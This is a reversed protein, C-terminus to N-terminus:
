RGIIAHGIPVHHASYSVAVPHVVNQVVPSVAAYAHGEVTSYAFNGGLRDSQIIASDFSPTRVLAAPGAVFGASCVALVCALVIAVKM